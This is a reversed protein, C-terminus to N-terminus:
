YEPNFVLKVGNSDAYTISFVYEELEYVCETLDAFKRLADAMTAHNTTHTSLAFNIHVRHM